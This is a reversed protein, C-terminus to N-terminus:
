VKNLVYKYKRHLYNLMDRMTNRDYGSDSAVYGGALDNKFILIEYILGRFKTSANVGSGDKRCGVGLFNNSSTGSFELTTTPVGTLMNVKSYTSGGSLWGAMFGDADLMAMNQNTIYEVPSVYSHYHKKEDDATDYRVEGTSVSADTVQVGFKENIDFNCFIGKTGTNDNISLVDQIQASDPAIRDCVIFITVGPFELESTSFDTTSGTFGIMHHTGDFFLSPPGYFDPLLQTTDIFYPADNAATALYATLGKHGISQWKQFVMNVKNKVYWVRDANFPRDNSTNAKIMTQKDTFDFWAILSPNNVRDEDHRQGEIEIPTLLRRCKNRKAGALGM